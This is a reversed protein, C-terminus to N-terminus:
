KKHVTTCINVPMNEPLCCAYHLSLPSLLVMHLNQMGMAVQAYM